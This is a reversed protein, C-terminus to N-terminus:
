AEVGMMIRGVTDFDAEDTEVEQIMEESVEADPVEVWNEALDTIGLYVKKSYTEGNTLTMGESPELVVININSQIMSGDM